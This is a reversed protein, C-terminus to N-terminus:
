KIEITLNGDEATYPSYKIRPTGGYFDIFFTTDTQGTFGTLIPSYPINNDDVLNLNAIGKFSAQVKVKLFQGGDRYNESIFYYEKSADEVYFKEYGLYKKHVSLYIVLLLFLKGYNTKIFGFATKIM